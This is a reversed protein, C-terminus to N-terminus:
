LKGKSYAEIFQQCSFGPDSFTVTNTCSATRPIDSSTGLHTGCRVAAWEPALASLFGLSCGFRKAHQLDPEVEAQESLELSTHAAQVTTATFTASTERPTGRPM